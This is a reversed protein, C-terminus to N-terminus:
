MLKSTERMRDWLEHMVFSDRELHLRRAAVWATDLANLLERVTEAEGGHMISIEHRIEQLLTPLAKVLEDESPRADFAM